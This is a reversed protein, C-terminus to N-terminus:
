PSVHSFFFFFFQSSCVQPELSPMEDSDSDSGVDEVQAENEAKTMNIQKTTPKRRLFFFPSAFSSQCCSLLLLLARTLSQKAM